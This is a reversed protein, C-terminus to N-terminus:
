LADKAVIDLETEGRSVGFVCLRFAMLIAFLGFGVAVFSQPIWMPMELADSKQDFSYLTFVVESSFVSMVALVGIAIVTCLLVAATRYATPLRDVILEIRMHANRWTVSIAGAFVIFIMLYVMAEEAWSWASGFIYRRLVNVSCIAVIILLASAAGVACTDAVADGILRITRLAVSQSGRKNAPVDNDHM